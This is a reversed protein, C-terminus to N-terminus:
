IVQNRSRRTTAWSTCRPSCYDSEHAGLRFYTLCDPRNCRRVKNGGTFDLYIMLYMAQLLSRCRWGRWFEGDEGVSTYPSVGAVRANLAGAIQPGYPVSPFEKCELDWSLLPERTPVISVGSDGDVDLLAVVGYSVKVDEWTLVQGGPPGGFGEASLSYRAYTGAPYFELEEPLALFRNTLRIREVTRKSPGRRKYLLEDLREKGEAKPDMDRMEGGEIIANPSVLWTGPPLVPGSFYEYFLGLLGHQEAFRLVATDFLRDRRLDALKHFHLHAGAQLDRQRSVPIYSRLPSVKSWTAADSVVVSPAYGESYDERHDSARWLKTLSPQGFESLPRRHRTQSM